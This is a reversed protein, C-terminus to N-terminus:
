KGGSTVIKAFCSSLATPIGTANQEVEAKIDAYEDPRGLGPSLYIRETKAPDGKFFLWIPDASGPKIHFISWAGVQLKHDIPLAGKAIQRGVAAAEAPNAAGNSVNVGACPAAALAPTALALLFPLAALAIRTM